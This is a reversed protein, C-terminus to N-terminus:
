NAAFCYFLGDGGTSRLADQSCGRTPHSSNWSKSPANDLLGLRDHHGVIASGDGSKTWNGCTTDKDDPLARGDPTSGTLIDHRNPADGRGTIMEGSETLATQKSLSNEGHLEDVNRAIVVRKANQWPGRGIRDRANAAASGNTSLYAHWTRNGAGVKKALSQCYRDAGALGGLDAGNGPGASTVFFTTANGGGSSTASPPTQACAALTLSVAVVCMLLPSSTGKNM